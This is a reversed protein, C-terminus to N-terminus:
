FAISTQKKPTLSPQTPIAIEQKFSPRILEMIKEKELRTRIAMTDHSPHNARSDIKSTVLRDIFFEYDILSAQPIQYLLAEMACVHLVSGEFSNDFTKKDTFFEPNLNDMPHADLFEGKRMRLLEYKKTYEEIAKRKQKDQLEEYANYSTPTSRGGPIVKKADGKNAIYWALIMCLLAIFIIVSILPSNKNTKKNM